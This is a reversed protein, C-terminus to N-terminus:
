FSGIQQRLLARQLKLQYKRFADPSLEKEKLREEAKEQARKARELDISGAMELTQALVTVKDNSVEVFGSSVAAIGSDGSETQYRLVGTDLASLLRAHGPLITMEGQTGPLTVSTTKIPGIIRKEPTVIDLILM